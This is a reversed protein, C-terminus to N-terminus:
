EPEGTKRPIPTYSPGLEKKLQLLERLHEVERISERRTTEVAQIAERHNAEMKDLVEKHRDKDSETHDFIKKDIRKDFFMLAGVVGGIMTALGGAIEVHEPAIVIGAVASLATSLVVFAPRSFHHTDYPLM